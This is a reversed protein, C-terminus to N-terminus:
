SVRSTVQEILALAARQHAPQWPAAVLLELREDAIEVARFLGGGGPRVRVRVDGEPWARLTDRPHLQFPGDRLGVLHVGGSEDLVVLSAAPLAARAELVRRADAEGARLGSLGPAGAIDLVGNVVDIRRLLAAARAPAGGWREALRLMAPAGVAVPELAAPANVKASVVVM